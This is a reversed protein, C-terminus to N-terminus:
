LLCKICLEFREELGLSRSGRAITLAALQCGEWIPGRQFSRDTLILWKAWLKKGRRPAAQIWNSTWTPYFPRAGSSQRWLTMEAESSGQPWSFGQYSQVAAWSGRGWDNVWASGLLGRAPLLREDWPRSRAYSVELLVIYSIKWKPGGSVWASMVNGRVPVYERIGAVKEKKNKM